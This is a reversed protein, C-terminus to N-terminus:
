AHHEYGEILKDLRTIDGQKLLKYFKNNYMKQEKQLAKKSEYVVGLYSHPINNKYSHTKGILSCQKRFAEKNDQQWKVLAKSATKGGKSLSASTVHEKLREGCTARSSRYKESKRQGEKCAEIRAQEPKMRGSLCKWAIYDEKKGFDEWLQKHFAAHLEISIPPTLNDESDDGGM